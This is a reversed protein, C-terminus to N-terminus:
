NALGTAWRSYVDDAVAHLEALRRDLDRRIDAACQASASSTAPLESAGSALWTEVLARTMEVHCQLGIHRGDVVYAQNPNFTNTLVPVAGPPRAFADYHWQFTTFRPRGGFWDGRARADTVDVDIWGIEPVKARAVPAGLAKALLQGGLCHGLVPIGADVAMRLLACVPEIWPLADNVGMPGGMLALGSYARPDAPVAAAADLPVITWTIGRRDLWDAFYAPGETPSFRLVAVPRMSPPERVACRNSRIM